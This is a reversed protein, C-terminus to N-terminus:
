GLPTPQGLLKLTVLGAILGVIAAVIMALVTKQGPLSV